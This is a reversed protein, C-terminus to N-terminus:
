RCGSSAARARGPRRRAARGIRNGPGMRAANAFDAMYEFTAQAPRHSIVTGRYRAM